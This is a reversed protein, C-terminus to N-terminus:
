ALAQYSSIVSDWPLDPHSGALAKKMRKLADDEGMKQAEAGVENAFTEYAKSARWSKFWEEETQVQKEIEALHAVLEAVKQQAESTKVEAALKALVAVEKSKIQGAKETAWKDREGQFDEQDRKICREINALKAEAVRHGEKAAHVEDFHKKGKAEIDEVEEAMHVRNKALNVLRASFQFAISTSM